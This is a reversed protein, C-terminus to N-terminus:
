YRKIPSIIFELITYWAILGFVENLHPLKLWFFMATTLFGSLLLIATFRTMTNEHRDSAYRMETERKNHYLAYYVLQTPAVILLPFLSEKIFFGPDINDISKDIVVVFILSIMALIFLTMGVLGIHKLPESLKHEKVRVLHVIWIIWYTVGQVWFYQMADTFNWRFIYFLLVPLVLSFIIRRNFEINLTM